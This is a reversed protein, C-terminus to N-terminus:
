TDSKDLENTTPSEARNSGDYLWDEILKTRTAAPSGAFGIVSALDGTGLGERLGVGPAALFIGLVTQGLDVAGQELLQGIMLNLVTKTISQISHPTAADFDAAYREFLVQQGRIVDTHLVLAVLDSGRVAPLNAIGLDAASELPMFRAARLGISYRAIGHLHHFGHRRNEACTCRSRNGAVVELDPNPVTIIRVRSAASIKGGSLARSEV